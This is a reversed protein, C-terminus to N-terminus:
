GLNRSDPASFQQRASIRPPPKRVMIRHIMPDLRLARPDMSRSAVAKITRPM